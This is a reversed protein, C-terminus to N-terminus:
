PVALRRRSPQLVGPHVQVSSRIASDLDFEFPLQNDNVRLCFLSGVSLLLQRWGFICETTSFAVDM